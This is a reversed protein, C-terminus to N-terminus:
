RGGGLRSRCLEALRDGRENLWRYTRSAQVIQDRVVDAEPLGSRLRGLFHVFVDLRRLLVLSPVASLEEDTLRAAEGYGQLFADIRAWGDVDDSGGADDDVENTGDPRILDSLCVAAEMVRLDRTVFEFDLVATVPGDTAASLANSANLDGHVLQHPLRRLRPLRNRLDRLAAGVDELERELVSFGDPPSECFTEVDSLPCSPHILELEYYPPYAPTGGVAPGVAALAKSLSGATRGFSRLQKTTRLTPNVGDIRRFLAAIKGEDTTAITEGRATRVPGPVSFPLGDVRALALLTRHEFAAKDADRHTEYVRLVYREEGRDVFRTTNNMGSQGPVIRAGGEPFYAALLREFEQRRTEHQETM